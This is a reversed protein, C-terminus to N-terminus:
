SYKCLKGLQAGLSNGQSSTSQPNLSDLISVSFWRSVIATIQSFFSQPKSWPQPFLHFSYSPNQYTKSSSIVYIPSPSNAPLHLLFLFLFGSGAVLHATSNKSLYPLRPFMNPILFTILKKMSSYIM